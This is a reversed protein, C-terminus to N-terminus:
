YTGRLGNWMLQLHLRAGSPAVADAEFPAYGAKQLRELILSAVTAPLLSSCASEPLTPQLSRAALLHSVAETALEVVADRLAPSSEGRLVQPRAPTRAPRPPLQRARLASPPHAPRPRRAPQPEFWHSVQSLNVSHRSAVDAPVYTCGKSAHYATGRLLTALGLACGVHLAALEAQENDV